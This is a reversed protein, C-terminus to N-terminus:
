VESRADCSEEPCHQLNSWERGCELIHSLAGRYGHAVFPTSRSAKEGLRQKPKVEVASVAYSSVDPVQVRSVAFGDSGDHVSFRGSCLFRLLLLSVAASELRSGVVIAGLRARDFPWASGPEALALDGAGVPGAFGAPM